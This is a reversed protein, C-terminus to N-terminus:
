RFHEIFRQLADPRRNFVLDDALAREDASIEAYPQVHAPNVIAMDLGAEVCHHLFVSNLVSRAELALGFSVNSVGLSTYVGPLERKILRIGEITEVASDIWEVDGTALTFTLDDYILDEPKLGYEGVVIEYIKKAVELKRERTKAMGIPDITLAVLAAGHKKALPVVKDIRERGNEMNISNIVARGPIAELAREIVTAETSDIMIPTDVTMSLLKVVKAMQEAEDARETVAVCVDLLHAGSEVQERAVDSIGEYDEALLLRKVKRSGQANVREGILLPKPNQDFDTARMASSARPIKSGRTSGPVPSSPHPIPSSRTPTGVGNGGEGTGRGGGVVRAVIAALHEPRTGCCGGVIRVGFQEVFEGLMDAMPQPELPYVADGTGTNLPLGANPICSVPRTANTALFRIPERMHEPGTSCNLGIVDIPLAELTTMASAIDTGLLMRGSTDLTVQAQVAVRRGLEKFLREFGAVAAKVELIDQSTEILLVDVGGEVLYKAQTYYNERARRVDYEVVGSRQELSALRNTWDLGRRVAAQGTDLIQRV